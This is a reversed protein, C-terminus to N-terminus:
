LAAAPPVSGMGAASIRRGRGQEARRAFEAIVFTWDDEQERKHNATEAAKLLYAAAESLPMAATEEYIKTVRRLGLRRGNAQEIEPIGDTLLMFRDGPTLTATVVATDFQPSGLPVGRATFVKFQGGLLCVAPFGAASYLSLQGSHTDFEAVMIQMLYRGRGSRMVQENAIRLFERPGSEAWVERMVRFTTSVSATVMAPGPGHGTVDGCAIVHVHGNIREHWWWDGSCQGAPRYVGVLGFGDEDVQSADPLFGTQVAATLQIEREVTALRNQQEMRVLKRRQYQVFVLVVALASLGYIGYAWWTRWPPPLVQLPVILSAPSAVGHRGRARLEFVYAGPDLNTYTVSNQKTAIWRDHLGTLRYEYQLRRPDAFALAAFQISVVSDLYSLEVDAAAPVQREEDFVRFGTLIVPPAFRDPRITEPRFVTAGKTGSFYFAGSAGRHYGGQAFEDAQLGDRGAYSMMQDTRPDLVKLGGGNTSLWLGGTEDEIIGYITSPQGPRNYRKWTRAKPDFLNLGGGFTGIWLRGSSDQHITTVNNNSLTNASNRDHLYRTATGRTTDFRNLGGEATGVWLLKPDAADRALTYIYNSSVTNDANPEVTFHEVQGTTPQFKVLGDGWTGLWLAGAPDDLIFNVNGPSDDAGVQYQTVTDTEPRYQILGLGHTGIWITGSPDAHLAAIWRQRLNLLRTGSRLGQYITYRGTQSDVRYLGSLDMGPGAGMWFTTPNKRDEVIATIPTGATRYYRFALALSDFYNVDGAQTGVWVVGDRTTAGATVWAQSLRDRNSPDGTHRIFGGKEDYQNLGGTETGIWVSDDPGRFIVLVKDDSLTRPDDNKHRYTVVKGDKDVSVMGDSETGIWMRGRGDVHLATVDDSTLRAPSNPFSTYHLATRNRNADYILVGEGRSGLMLLGDRREAVASLGSENLLQLVQATGTGCDVRAVGGSALGVWLTNKSDVFLVSIADRLLGKPDQKQDRFHVFTDRGPVLSTLGADTGVWLRGSRDVALSTVENSPLSSPNKPDNVFVKMDHGDYRVLGTRTGFYLFGRGDQAIAYVGISPLGDESGLRGFRLPGPMVGSIMIHPEPAAAPPAVPAKPKARSKPRAAADTSTMVLLATV